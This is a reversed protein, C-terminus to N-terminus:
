TSVRLAATPLDSRWGHLQFVGRVRDLYSVCENVSLGVWKSFNGSAEYQGLGLDGLDILVDSHIDLICITQTPDFSSEVALTRVGFAISKRTQSLEWSMNSSEQPAEM